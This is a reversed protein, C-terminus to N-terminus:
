QAVIATKERTSVVDSLRIDPQSEPCHTVICLYGICHYDVM